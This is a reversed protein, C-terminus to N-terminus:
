FIRGVFFWIELGHEVDFANFLDFQAFIGDDDKGAANFASERGHVVGGIWNISLRFTDTM